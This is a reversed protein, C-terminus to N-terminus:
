SGVKRRSLVILLGGAALALISAVPPIVVNTEKDENATIPGIKAVQEKHHFPIVNFVLSGLGLVVLLAGLLALPKM